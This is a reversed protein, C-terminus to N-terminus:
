LGGFRKSYGVSIAVSFYYIITLLNNKRFMYM